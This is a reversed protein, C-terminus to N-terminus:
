VDGAFTVGAESLGEDIFSTPHLRTSQQDVSESNFIQRRKLICPAILTENAEELMFDASRTRSGKASCGLDYDGATTGENWSYRTETVFDSETKRTSNIVESISDKKRVSVRLGSEYTSQLACNRHSHGREPATPAASSPM